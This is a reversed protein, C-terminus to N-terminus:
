GSKLWSGSEAGGAGWTDGLSDADGSNNETKKEEGVSRALRVNLTLIFCASAEM